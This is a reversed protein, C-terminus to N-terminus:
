DPITAPELGSDVEEDFGWWRERWQRSKDTEHIALVILQWYDLYGESVADRDVM